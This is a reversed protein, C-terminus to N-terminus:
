VVGNRFIGSDGGTIELLRWDYVAADNYPNEDQRLLLPAAEYKVRRANIKRPM